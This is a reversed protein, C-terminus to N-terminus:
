RLDKLETLTLSLLFSGKDEKQGKDEVKGKMSKNKIRWREKVRDTM